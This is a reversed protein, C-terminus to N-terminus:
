TFFRNKLNEDSLIIIRKLIEAEPKNKFNFKAFQPRSIRIFYIKISFFLTGYVLVHGESLSCNWLFYFIHYSYGNIDLCTNLVLGLEARARSANGTVVKRYPVSNFYLCVVRNSLDPWPQPLNLSILALLIM